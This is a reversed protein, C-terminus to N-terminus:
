HEEIPVTRFINILRSQIQLRENEDRIRSQQSELMNAVAKVFDNMLSRLGLVVFLPKINPDYAHHGGDSYAFKYTDPYKKHFDSASGFQHLVACRAGYFDVGRYQYLQEPHGKM